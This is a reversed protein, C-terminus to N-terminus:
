NVSTSGHSLLVLPYRSAQASLPAEVAFATQVFYPRWAPAGVQPVTLPSGASAPYWIVTSLPRHGTNQWNSRAEDVFERQEFGVPPAEAAWAPLAVATQWALLLLWRVWRVRRESKMSM